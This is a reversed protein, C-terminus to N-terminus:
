SWSKVTCRELKYCLYGGAVADLEDDQLVRNDTRAEAAVDEHPERSTQSQRYEIKSM